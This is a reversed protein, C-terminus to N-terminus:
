QGGAAVMFASAQGTAQSTKNAVNGFIRSFGGADKRSTGKGSAMKSTMGLKMLPRGSAIPVPSNIQTHVRSRSCDWKEVWQLFIRVWFPNHTLM